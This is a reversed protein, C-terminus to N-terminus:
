KDMDPKDKPAEKPAEKPAPASSGGSYVGPATVTANGQLGAGRPVHYGSLALFKRLSILTVGNDTAKQQMDAMEKVITDRRKDERTPDSGTVPIPGLILYDTQRDIGKGKITLDKLDLYADVIVGQRQLNRVFENMDDRGEGTLDVLGTIAVHQRTNPDWGPNFLLDGRMIPDKGEDRLSTVRAQALHDGLINTVELTAKGEKEPKGDAGVAPKGDPGYVDYTIPRGGPGPAYVSFTIGPKLNDASGLNIYPMRGTQDVQYITGKPHDYDLINVTANKAEAKEVRMKLQKSEKEMASKLKGAEGERQAMETRLTEIQKSLDLKQKERDAIEAVYKALDEDAKKKQKDLSDQFDKRANELEKQSAAAATDAKKQADKAAEWNKTATALDKKLQDIEDSLSKVPRNTAPDWGLNKDLNERIAKVNEEKDKARSSTVLQGSNFGSRLPGVAEQEEKTLPLGDYAKYAIALLHYFDADKQWKNKEDEKAKAENTLDSQASFGLYTTVGLIISLLVFVVLFVILVPSSKAKAAM